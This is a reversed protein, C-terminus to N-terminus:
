SRGAPLVQLRTMILIVAILALLTSLSTDRASVFPRAASQMFIRPWHASGCAPSASSASASFAAPAGLAHLSRPHQQQM